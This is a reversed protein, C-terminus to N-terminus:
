EPRQWRKWSSQTRMMWGEKYLNYRTADFHPTAATQRFREGAPTSEMIFRGVLFLAAAIMLLLLVPRLKSVKARGYALLIWAPAFIGVALISKRSGSALLM